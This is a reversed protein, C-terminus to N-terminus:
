ATPVLQGDVTVTEDLNESAAMRWGDPTLTWRDRTKVSQTGKHVTGIPDVFTADLSSTTLAVADRGEVKLDDVEVAYRSVARVGTKWEAFTPELRDRSIVQGNKLTQTFDPTTRAILPQIEMRKMAEGAVAYAAEIERRASEASEGSLADQTTGNEM